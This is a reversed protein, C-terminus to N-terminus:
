ERGGLLRELDFAYIAGASAGINESATIFGASVGAYLTLTDRRCQVGLRGASRDNGLRSGAWGTVDGVLRLSWADSGIGTVPRSVIAVSYSFLDDQGVGDLDEAGLMPGPNGLLLLGVNVHAAVVGVDKSALGEVWFDTEDTGLRNDKNANPLKTGFRLGFGPWRDRESRVRVKTFLRADGAGFVSQRSHGDAKTEHLSIMEFSAQIEAWSGAAARFSFEPGTLLRQSQLAGAGTFPPFRGDALYTAGLVAEAFGSSLTAATETRAPYLAEARVSRPVGGLLLIIVALLIRRRRITVGM